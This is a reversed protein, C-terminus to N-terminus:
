RRWNWSFFWSFFKGNFKSINELTIKKEGYFLSIILPFQFKLLFSFWRSAVQDWFKAWDFCMKRAWQSILVKRKILHFELLFSLFVLSIQRFDPNISKFKVWFREHNCNLSANKSVSSSKSEPKKSSLSRSKKTSNNQPQSSARSKSKVFPSRNKM